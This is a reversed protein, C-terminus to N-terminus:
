LYSNSNKLTLVTAVESTSGIFDNLYLNEVLGYMYTKTNTDEFKWLRLALIEASCCVAFEQM